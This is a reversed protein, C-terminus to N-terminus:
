LSVYYRAIHHNRNIVPIFTMWTQFKSYVYMNQGEEACQVRIPSMPMHTLYTKRDKPIISDNDSVMMVRVHFGNERWRKKNQRHELFNSVIAHVTGSAVPRHDRTRVHRKTEPETTLISSPCVPRACPLEEINLYVSMYM